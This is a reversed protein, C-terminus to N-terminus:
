RTERGPGPQDRRQTTRTREAQDHDCPLPRPERHQDQDRPAMPEPRITTQARAWAEIADRDITHDPAHRPLRAIFERKFQQYSVPLPDHDRAHASEHLGFHDLLLCRALEAPGSGEYGTEFGARSHRVHHPVPRERGADDVAHAHVVIPWPLEHLDAEAWGGALLESRSAPERRVVYRVPRTWPAGNSPPTHM